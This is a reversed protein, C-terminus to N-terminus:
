QEPKSQRAQKNTKILHQAARDGFWFGLSVLNLGFLEGTPFDFFLAIIFALVLLLTVVPRVLQRVIEVKPNASFTEHSDIYNIEEIVDQREPQSLMKDKLIKDIIKERITM